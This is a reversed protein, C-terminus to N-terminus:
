LESYLHALRATLARADFESTALQINARSIRTRLEDDQLLLLIKEAIQDPACPEILFGNEGDKMIEPIAGYRTSIIPLGAAM